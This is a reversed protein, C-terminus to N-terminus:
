KATLGLRERDKWRADFIDPAHDTPDNPDVLIVIGDGTQWNPKLNGNMELRGSLLQTTTFEYELVTLDISKPRKQSYKFDRHTIRGATADGHGVLWVQRNVWRMRGVGYWVSGAIILPGLVPIFSM